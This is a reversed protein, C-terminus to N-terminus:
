NTSCLGVHITVWPFFIMDLNLLINLALLILAIIGVVPPVLINVCFFVLLRGRPQSSLQYTAVHGFAIVFYEASSLALSINSTMAQDIGSSISSRINTILEM